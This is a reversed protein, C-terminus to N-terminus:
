LLWSVSSEKVLDLTHTKM